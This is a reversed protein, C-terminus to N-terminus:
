VTKESHRRFTAILALCVGGIGFLAITSPEPVSSAALGYQLHDVEIGQGAGSSIRFSSIGGLEIIGYFRDEGKTGFFTSDAHNGVITGLSSGMADFAEFTIPNIGDTWVIGVHTPLQGLISASFDFAIGPQGATFFSHGSPGNEVSDIATSGTAVLPAPTGTATVGPVNFLGDEFTELHFYSFSVGNFPSDGFSSYTSPGIFGGEVSVTTSVTILIFTVTRLM